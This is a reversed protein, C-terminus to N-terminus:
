SASWGGTRRCLRVSRVAHRAPGEAEGAGQLRQMMWPGFTKKKPRGAGDDGAPLLPPALHYSLKFNGDFQERLEKEFSGDTYLRAVEYEDKYALLKAYGIAVARTLTESLDQAEVAAAVEGVLKRYRDALSADQYATLHAARHAILEDLSMEGQTKAPTTEEHLM